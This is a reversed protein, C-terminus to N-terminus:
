GKVTGKEFLGGYGSEEDKGFLVQFITNVVLGLGFFCFMWGVTHQMPPIHPEDMVYYYNAISFPAVYTIPTIYSMGLVVFSVGCM